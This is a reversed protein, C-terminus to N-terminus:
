FYSLKTSIIIDFMIGIHSMISKNQWVYYRHIAYCVPLYKIKKFFTLFNAFKKAFYGQFNTFYITYNYM